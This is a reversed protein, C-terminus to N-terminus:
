LDADSHTFVNLFLYFATGAVSMLRYRDVSINIKFHIEHKKANLKFEWRASSAYFICM